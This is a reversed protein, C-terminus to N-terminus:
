DGCRRTRSRLSFILGTLKRAAVAPDAFPRDRSDDPLPRMTVIAGASRSVRRPRLTVDEKPCHVVGRMAVQERAVVRYGSTSMSRCVVKASGITGVQANVFKM